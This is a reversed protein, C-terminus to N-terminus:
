LMSFSRILDRMFTPMGFSVLILSFRKAVLLVHGTRIHRGLEKLVFRSYEAISGIRPIEQM